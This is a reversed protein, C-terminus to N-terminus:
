NYNGMHCAVLCVFIKISSKSACLYLRKNNYVAVPLFNFLAKKDRWIDFIYQFAFKVCALVVYFYYKLKM